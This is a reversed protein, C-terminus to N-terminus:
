PIKPFQTLLPQDNAGPKLASDLKIEGNESKLKQNLFECESDYVVNAIGTKTQHTATMLDSQRNNGFRNHFVRLVAKQEAAIGIVNSDFGANSISLSSNRLRIAPGNSNLFETGDIHVRAKDRILVAALTRNSGCNDIRGKFIDVATEREDGDLILGEARHNLFVCSDLILQSGNKGILGKQHSESILCNRLRATSRDLIIAFENNCDGSCRSNSKIFECKDLDILSDTLANLATREIRAFRCLKM